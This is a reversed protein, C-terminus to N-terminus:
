VVETTCSLNLTASAAPLTHAAVFTVLGRGSAYSCDLITSLRASLRELITVWCWFPLLLQCIKSVTVLSRSECICTPALVYM